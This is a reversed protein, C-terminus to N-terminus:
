LSEDQPVRGCRGELQKSAAESDCISCVVEPSTSKTVPLLARLLSHQGHLAVSVPCLASELFQQWCLHLRLRGVGDAPCGHVLQLEYLIRTGSALWPWTRCVNLPECFPHFLAGGLGLSAWTTFWSLYQLLRLHRHWRHRKSGDFWEHFSACMQSTSM